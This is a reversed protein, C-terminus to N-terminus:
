GEHGDALTPLVARLAIILQAIQRRLDSAYTPTGPKAHEVVITPDLAAALNEIFRAESPCAMLKNRQRYEANVVFAAMDGGFELDKVVWLETSHQQFILGTLLGSRVEEVSSPWMAVVAPCLSVRLLEIFATDDLGGPSQTTRVRSDRGLLRQIWDFM